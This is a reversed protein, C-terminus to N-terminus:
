QNIYIIVATAWISMYGATAQKGSQRCDMRGPGRRDPSLKQKICYGREEDERDGEEEGEDQM